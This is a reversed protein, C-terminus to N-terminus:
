NALVFMYDSDSGPDHGFLVTLGGGTRQANTFGPLTLSATPRGVATAHLTLGTFDPAGQGDFWNLDFSSESVGWLTAADGTSFGNVTSWIPATAGRADVFFTDAGSGGTLFNSGTGGDLVNTGGFAAIADDGSGSHVFWNPGALAITLNEPTLLIMERELGAVPGAYFVPAIAVPNGTAGNVAVIDSIVEDELITGTATATVFAVGAPAPGLTVTFNQNGELVADGAVALTITASTQNAAFAVTGSPLVGGSFAAAGAPRPAAPSVSYPVSIAAGTNGTRTVTFTFPTTAGAGGEPKAADAAAVALDATATTNSGATLQSVSTLASAVAGSFGGQVQDGWTVVSGDARLAAFALGTGTLQVVDITGDLAAAVEASNGGGLFSGWTVVSGDARLAAFAQETAALSVVNTLQSAVASADGGYPGHGWAVVSGDSRLAAFASSNALIKVADITGDLQVAVGALDGGSGASGWAVVSGDERRAAFASQTAALAIVGTSGDLAAAVTTSSGGAQNQGWTVVSGDARIAAFASATAGIGVVDIAGNLATAVASSDGGDAANGWTVVSGDSRIAAFASGTAALRIVDLTGDLATAVATSDGGFAGYGWAVVSGDARLAAFASMNSVIVTVDVTGDLSPAAPASNGGTSPDGWTVVSGDRRLAAFASMTSFVDTVDIAGALAGTVAASNGGLSANGWTVVSGDARLAAFAFANPTIRVVGALQGSVASSDGGNEADGWTVVSRDSRIAAFARTNAFSGPRDGRFSTIAVDAATLKASNAAAAPAASLAGFASFPDVINATGFTLFGGGAIDALSTYLDLWFHEAGESAEDALTHVTITKATENAAFTVEVIPLGTYDINELATSEITTVYVTSAAGAGSRTITFTVDDGETVPTEAATSTVTYDFIAPTTDTLYASTYTAYNGAQSDTLSQFVDLWFYEGPDITVDALINVTVTRTLDNAGFNVAQASLAQFDSGATATAGTTTVYVTSAAGTGSRTITFSVAGGEAVPTLIGANSAVTYSFAASSTDAVHGSAFAAYDGALSDAYSEFLDLWFYELGEDASDQYTPVTITKSTEGTAFALAQAPLHEYDIGGTATADSTRVYVVSEAGTSNRTITFTINAGEGAPAGAPADSTVSYSFDAVLADAIYGSAFAAYDGDQSDAYSEFLDLWFYEAGETASDQYTAVTVTKITENAAFILPQAALGQFDSGDQATSGTTSLYVTSAAGTGSRTVTFTIAGGESAPTLIGASSAVTYDFDVVAADAIHGSAYAAYDGSQSDAYSEYLDLWFSEPGETASDQYTAVTVSKSTEYPAFNVALVPLAAFDVGAWASSDSTSVYVTSAAGTGSRTITFTVAAGESAPSVFGADSSVAYSFDTVVADAITGRAFAAYAGTQSDAYTEYLDLWFYEDGETSTDAYTAVTVTKTSEHAAFDVALETVPAFDTGGWATSDSTSVYVTSAAGTGSRTLTFSIQGGEGVPAAAPASSAVSYDFSPAAADAIRGQSSTAPASDAINRYLNLWFHEAEESGADALTEITVQKSTEYAAFELAFQDLGAYDLSGASGDTTSLYVTSATGSGSRTVTFVISGGEAVPAADSSNTIAYNYDATPRDKLFGTGHTAFSAAGQQLFLDLRFYEPTELWWDQNTQVTVTAVSQYAEFTVAQLALAAYDANGASGQGTAVYVTSQTGTGSRHISFRVAGGEAVAAAASGASSQITYGYAPLAADTIFGTALATTGASDPNERFELNFSEAGEVASDQLTAITISKVTEYAAFQLTFKDLGAIDAGDATVGMTSLYITSASGTGSRTITYTIGTGEIAAHGADPASSTAGYSFVAAAKDKIHSVVSAASVTGAATAFIDARFSETAEALTDANTKVALSATTEQAAFNVAVRNVGGFDGAGASIGTTSVYVTSAAGTGSRTITLTVTDGETAPTAEGASSALAYSFVPPAAGAESLAVIGKVTANWFDGITATFQVNYEGGTGGWPNRVTFRDTGADYGLLMFAHGSVLNQKSNGADYTNGFSALWGIAGGALGDIITQKYTGADTSTVESAKFNDPVGAYYSSYYRYSLNTLQKIPNAWGGEVAQYSAEGSWKGANNINAQANLQAYAKEILSVWSEGSLSHEVNSSLAVRNTGTVPVNQDVTVYVPAGDLYFRVGYSGNANDIVADTIMAGNVGAIAGLSAVLYCTGASGQNIDSAAAGGVFLAGTVKAYSYVGSAAKSNATDGGVVPMPLDRGLFWKDILWGAKQASLGAAMDGLAAVDGIAKAGGWFKANGPNGVIVSTSISRIYDSGYLPAFNAHVTQLDAFEVASIGDGAAAELLGLMELYTVTNDASAATALAGIQADGLSATWSM